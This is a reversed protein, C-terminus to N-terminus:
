FSFFAPAIENKERKRKFNNLQLLFKLFNILPNKRKKERKEIGGWENPPLV